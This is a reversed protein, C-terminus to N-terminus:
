SIKVAFQYIKALLGDPIRDRYQGLYIFLRRFFEKNNGGVEYEPIEPMIGKCKLIFIETFQNREENNLIAIFPDFSKCNYFDYGATTVRGEMEEPQFTPNVEEAVEVGEVPGGDYPMAEAFEEVVYQPVPPQAPMPEVAKKEKKGGLTIFFVILSVVAVAISIIDLKSADFGGGVIVTAVHAIYGLALLIAQVRLIGKAGKTFFAIIGMVTSVALLLLFVYMGIGGIVATGTTASYVPLMGFAKECKGLGTIMEILTMQAAGDTKLVYVGLVCPLAAGIVALLLALVRFGWNGSSKEEAPAQENSATKANKKAANRLEKKSKSKVPQEAGPMPMSPPAVPPVSPQTYETNTQINSM